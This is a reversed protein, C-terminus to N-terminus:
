QATRVPGKFVGKNTTTPRNSPRAMAWTTPRLGTWTPNTTRLTVSHCYKELVEINRWWSYEVLAGYEGINRLRHLQRKELLRKFINALSVVARNCLLIESNILLFNSNARWLGWLSRVESRLVCVACIHSKKILLFSVIKSELSFSLLNSYQIQPRKTQFYERRYWSVTVSQSYVPLTVSWM